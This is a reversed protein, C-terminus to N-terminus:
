CTYLSYIEAATIIGGTLRSAISGGGGGAAGPQGGTKDDMGLLYYYVGALTSILEVSTTQPHLPPVLKGAFLTVSMAVKILYSMWYGKPLSNVVHLPNHESGGPIFASFLSYFRGVNPVSDYTPISQICNGGSIDM